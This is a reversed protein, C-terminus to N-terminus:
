TPHYGSEKGKRKKSVNEPHYDSEKCKRRVDELVSIMNINDNVERITYNNRDKKSYWCYYHVFPLDTSIMEKLIDKNHRLKCRIAEQIDLIDQESFKDEKSCHKKGENKAQIGSLLKLEDFQKGSKIWYYFGEVSEFYGYQPHQFPAEYFNSLKKGLSTNGNSYVNIHTIGDDFPKIDEKNM